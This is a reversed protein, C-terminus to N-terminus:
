EVVFHGVGDANITVQDEAVRLIMLFPRSVPERGFVIRLNRASQEDNSVIELKTEPFTFDRGRLTDLDELQEWKNDNLVLFQYGKDRVEFATPRNRVIAEERALQLLLSIRQADTQLRQKTNQLATLSVAGLMIGMIVLVVLLELLTFGGQRVRLVSVKKSSYDSFILSGV